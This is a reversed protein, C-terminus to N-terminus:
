VRERSKAYVRDGIQYAGSRFLTNNIPLLSEYYSEGNSVRHRNRNSSGLKTIHLSCESFRFEDFEDTEELGSTGVSIKRKKHFSFM